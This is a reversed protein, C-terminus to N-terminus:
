VLELQFQEKTDHEILALFLNYFCISQVIIIVLGGGGGRPVEYQARYFQVAMTSSIYRPVLQAMISLM